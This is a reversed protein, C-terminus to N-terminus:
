RIAHPPLFSARLKLLPQQLFASTPFTRCGRRACQAKPSLQLKCRVVMTLPFGGLASLRCGVGCLRFISRLWALRNRAAAGCEVALSRDSVSRDAPRACVVARASSRPTCPTAGRTDSGNRVVQRGLARRGMM